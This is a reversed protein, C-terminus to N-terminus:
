IQPEVTGFPLYRFVYVVFDEVSLPLLETKWSDPLLLPLVPRSCFSLAQSNCQSTKQYLLQPSNSIYNQHFPHHHTYVKVPSVIPNKYAVIHVEIVKHPENFLISSWLGLEQNSVIGEWKILNRMDRTGMAKGLHKVNFASSNYWINQGDGLVWVDKFEMFSGLPIFCHRGIEWLLNEPPVDYVTELPANIYLIHAVAMALRQGLGRGRIFQFLGSSM